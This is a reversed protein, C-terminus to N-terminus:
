GRVSAKSRSCPLGIGDAPRATPAIRACENWARMAGGEDGVYSRAQGLSVWSVVWLPDLETARVLPAIAVDADGHDLLASGYLLALEADSPYRETMALLRKMMEAHDAPDRLIGPEIADLLAADRASLNPRFRAAKELAERASTTEAGGWHMAIALRLYAAAMTPDLEVAHMMHERTGHLDATRYGYMALRYADRAGDVSSSPAPLDAVTTVTPAASPIPTAPTASTPRTALMRVGIGTALLAAIAAAGFVVRRAHLSLARPPEPTPQADNAKTTTVAVMTSTVTATLAVNAGAGASRLAAVDLRAVQGDLYPSLAAVVDNM